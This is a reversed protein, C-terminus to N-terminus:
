ESETVADKRDQYEKTLPLNQESWLNTKCITRRKKETIVWNMDSDCKVEM